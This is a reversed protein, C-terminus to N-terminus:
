KREYYDVRNFTNIYNSVKNKIARVPEFYYAIKNPVICLSKDWFWRAYKGDTNEHLWFIKPKDPIAAIEEGTLGPYLAEWKKKCAAFDLKLFKTEAKGTKENIFFVSEKKILYISGMRGPMYFEFNDWVIKDSIKDHFGELIATFQARTIPSHKCNKKYYRYIDTTKYDALIERKGRKFALAM